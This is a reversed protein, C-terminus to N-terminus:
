CNKKGNKVENIIKDTFKGHKMELYKTLKIIYDQHEERLTQNEKMLKHVAEVQTHCFKQLQKYTPQISLGEKLPCKYPFGKHFKGCSCEWWDNKDKQQYDEPLDTRTKM